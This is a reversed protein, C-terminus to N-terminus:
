RSIPVTKGYAPVHLTPMALVPNATFGPISSPGPMSAGPAYAPSYSPVYGQQETTNAAPHPRHAPQPMRSATYHPNHTPQSMAYATDHPNHTPQPVTRVSQRPVTHVNPSADTHSVSPAPSSASVVPSTPSDTKDAQTCPAQPAMQCAGSTTAPPAPCTRVQDEESAMLLQYNHNLRRNRASRLILCTLVIIFCLLAFTGASILAIVATSLSSRTDPASSIDNSTDVTECWQGRFGVYCSCSEQGFPDSTCDGNYHCTLSSCSTFIETACLAGTYGPSCSCQKLGLANYNCFGQNNCYDSFCDSDHLFSYQCQPGDWSSACACSYTSGDGTLHCTGGNQCQQSSCTIANSLSPLSILWLVTPVLFLANWSRCEM